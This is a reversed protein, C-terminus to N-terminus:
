ENVVSDSQEATDKLSGIPNKSARLLSKTPSFKYCDSKINTKICLLANMMKTSLRNRHKTKSLSYQSFLRESDVNSHFFILLAKALKCLLPFRPMNAPNKIVSVNVWYKDLIDNDSNISTCLYETCERKLPAMESAQIVNPLCKACEM